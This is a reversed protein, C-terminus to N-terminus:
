LRRYKVHSGATIIVTEAVNVNQAYMAVFEGSNVVEMYACRLSAWMRAVNTTGYVNQHAGPSGPSINEAEWQGPSAASSAAISPGYEYRIGTSGVPVDFSLKLESTEGTSTYFVTLEWEYAGPTVPFRLVPDSILATVSAFPTADTTRRVLPLSDGESWYSLRADNLSIKTTPSYFALELSPQTRNNDRQWKYFNAWSGHNKTLTDAVSPM